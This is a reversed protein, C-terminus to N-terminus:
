INLNSMGDEETHHEEQSREHGHLRPQTLRGGVDQAYGRGPLQGAHGDPVRGGGGQVRRVGVGVLSQSFNFSKKNTIFSCM